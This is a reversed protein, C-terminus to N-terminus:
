TTKITFRPIDTKFVLATKALIGKREWRKMNQNTPGRVISEDRSSFQLSTIPHKSNKGLTRRVKSFMQQSLVLEGFAPHHPGALVSDALSDTQQLGMRVVPISAQDFLDKARACLLVAKQLPLPKYEGANYLRALPSQELIITPYLRVFDPRQVIIDKVGRVFSATTEGPLGVMLQAGTRMGSDRLIKFASLIHGQDHGRNCQQLVSPSMSQIGLEVTNVGFSRLFDPTDPQIYDPRTSLRVAQVSGQAIFPHIASLLEEQRKKPLGTFSGGYFAVQVERGDDRPLQLHEEINRSVRKATINESFGVGTISHQNCFICQHPCGQHSIFIPIIFPTM